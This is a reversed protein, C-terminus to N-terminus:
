VNRLREPPVAFGNRFIGALQDVVAQREYTVRAKQHAARGLQMALQPDGLLHVCAQALQAPADRLIIERGDEFNLGEAGLRTSVIAKAHAAAEIIKVRTGGGHRIPCCVVRARRYWPQLDDVFGTFTVSEDASHYSATRERGPGIVVLRAAPVRARVAPWIEQVLLDVAQANPRYGMTGVFLVLPESADSDDLHPFNVSNPVTQVQDTGPFRALYRRDAESCVFTAAALRIAQIEALMLRPVQLLRLREAPWGPDLDHLLRRFWTVHEIDDLDFFLPARCTKEPAKRALAMLVCMSSLRHALIIDPRADLATSVADVAAETNAPRAIPQVHFDFVGRGLRQWLTPPEDEVLTPALRISVTPSWLRRLREEHQQIVEPAYHQDVPQLFLCDVRDVVKALAQVQTGLRQHVGYVTQSDDPFYRSVVLATTM